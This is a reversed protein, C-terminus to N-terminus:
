KPLGAFEWLWAGFLYLLGAAVGTAGIMGLIWQIYRTLRRRAHETEDFLTM